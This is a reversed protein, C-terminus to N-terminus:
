PRSPARGARDGGAPNTPPYEMRKNHPARGVLFGPLTAPSRRRGTADLLITANSM